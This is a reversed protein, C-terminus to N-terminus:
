FPAAAAYAAPGSAERRAVAERLMPFLGRSYRRADDLARFGRILFGTVGLDYYEMLAETLQEPTGVLTAQNGFKGGTAQIMGTWFCKDQLLGAAAAASQSVAGTSQMGFNSVGKTRTWDQTGSARVDLYETLIGHANRWAEEETDGTVVVFTSMFRLTRQHRRAAERVKAVTEATTKLPSGAMAYVDACRAGMEVAAESGGGWFVPLGRPQFPKVEVIARNFRYYEGAHDLPEDRTWLQRLIGVYEHSRSYRQDKALFDGDAQLEQDNPGAIIHVGARGSSVRDITALMRAAVTPSIFGPRHALMLKLTRTNAAVHTGIVLPDPLIASNAILVRDYGCEEQVQASEVIHALDFDSPPLPAFMTSRNHHILGTIEFAV